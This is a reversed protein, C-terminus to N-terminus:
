IINKICPNIMKSLLYFDRFISQVVKMCDSRLNLLHVLKLLFNYPKRQNCGSTLKM